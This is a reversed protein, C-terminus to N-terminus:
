VSDIFKYLGKLHKDSALFEKTSFSNPDRLSRGVCDYGARINKSHFLQSYDEEVFDFSHPSLITAITVVIEDLKKSELAM